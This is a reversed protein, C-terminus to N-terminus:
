WRRIGRGIGRGIAKMNDITGTSGMSYVFAFYPDSATGTYQTSRFTNEGTGTGFHCSIAIGNENATNQYWATALASTIPLGAWGVATINPSSEPTSKRDYGSEDSSNDSGADSANMCGATGWESADSAWDNWTADGDNDDVGAEDGEVWPKFVRYLPHTGDVYNANVYMFLTCASITAGAVINDSVSKVRVLGMRETNAHYADLSLVTAGGFNQDAVDEAIFTDEINADAATWSDNHWLDVNPHVDHIRDIAKASVFEVLYLKGSKKVWQNNVVVPLSDAEPYGRLYSQELGFLYKVKDSNDHLLRKVVRKDYFGVSDPSEVNVLSYEFANGLRIRVSDAAPLANYLVMASDVFADKYIIRHQVGAKYKIIEFDVGPFANNWHITDGVVSPVGFSPAGGIFSWNGTDRNLWLLRRLTQRITCAYGKYSLTIDTSGDAHVVAKVMDRVSVASDGQIVWATEIPQWTSDDAQYNEIPGGIRTKFENPNAPNQWTQADM